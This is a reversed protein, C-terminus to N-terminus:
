RPTRRPTTATGRRSARRGRERRSRRRPAPAAPHPRRHEVRVGCEDPAVSPATLGSTPADSSASRSRRRRVREDVAARAGAGRPSAPAADRPVASRRLRASGASISTPASPLPRSTSRTSSTTAATAAAVDDDVRAAIERHAPRRLADPELMREVWAARDAHPLHRIGREARRRRVPARPAVAQVVHEVRAGPHRHARDGRRPRDCRGRHAGIRDRGRQEEVAPGLRAWSHPTSHTRIVVSPRTSHDGARTRCLQERSRFRSM